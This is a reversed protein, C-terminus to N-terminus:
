KFQIHNWKAWKVNSTEHIWLSLCVGDNSIFGSIYIYRRMQHSKLWSQCSQNVQFSIFKQSIQNWIISYQCMRNEGMVNVIRTFITFTLSFFMNPVHKFMFYFETGSYIGPNKEHRAESMQPNRRIDLPRGSSFGLSRFLLHNFCMVWCTPTEWFPPVGLWWPNWYTDIHKM